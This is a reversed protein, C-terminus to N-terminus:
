QPRSEDYYDYPRESCFMMVFLPISSAVFLCVFVIIYVVISHACENLETLCVQVQVSTSLSHYQWDQMEVKRAAIRDLPGIKDEYYLNDVCELYTQPCASKKILYVAVFVWGLVFFIGFLTWSVRNAPTGGGMYCGM